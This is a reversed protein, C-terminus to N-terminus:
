CDLTGRKGGKCRSQSLGLQPLPQQLGRCHDLSWQKTSSHQLIIAKNPLSYINCITLNRDPLILKMTIYEMDAEESRQVEISPISTKVLTLMGGKPRDARDARHIEYGRISFRHMSNLNTEQICCVDTKQAKLFEQLELKNQQVGEANWHIIRLTQHGSLLEVRDEGPWWFLILAVTLRMPQARKLNLARRWRVRDAAWWSSVM